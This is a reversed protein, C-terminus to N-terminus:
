FPVEGPNEKIFKERYERRVSVPVIGSEIDQFCRILKDCRKFIEWFARFEVNERARCIDINKEWDDVMRGIGDTYIEVIMWAIYLPDDFHAAAKSYTAVLNKWEGAIQRIELM